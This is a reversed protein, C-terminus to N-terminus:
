CSPPPPPTRFYSTSLLSNFISSPEGVGEATPHHFLLGIADLQNTACNEPEVGKDNVCRVVVAYFHTPIAISGEEGKLWWTYNDDEDREGDRNGDLVSGVLVHITGFSMAWSRVLQELPM